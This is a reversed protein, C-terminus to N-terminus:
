SPVCSAHQIHPAAIGIVPQCAILHSPYSPPMSPYPFITNPIMCHQSLPLNSPECSHLHTCIMPSHPNPYIPHSFKGQIAGSALWLQQEQGLCRSGAVVFWRHPTPPHFRWAAATAGARLAPHHTHMNPPVSDHEPPDIPASILAGPTPRVTFLAHSAPRAQM